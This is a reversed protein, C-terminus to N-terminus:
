TGRASARTRQARASVATHPTWNERVFLCQKDRQCPVRRWELPGTDMFRWPCVRNKRAKYERALDSGGAICQNGRTHLVFGSCWFAHTFNWILRWSLIWERCRQPVLQHLWVPFLGSVSWASAVAFWHWLGFVSPGLSLSLALQALVSVSFGVGSAGVVLARVVM